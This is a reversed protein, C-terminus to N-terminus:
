KLLAVTWDELHLNPIGKFHQMNATVLTLNNAIATAAIRKDLVGCRVSAPIKRFEGYEANGFPVIQLQRLVANLTEHFYRYRDVINPYKQNASKAIEQLRGNLLENATVDSVYQDRRKTTRVKHM